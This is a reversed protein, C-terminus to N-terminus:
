DSDLNEMKLPHRADAYNAVATSTVTLFQKALEFSKRTALWLTCFFGIWGTTILIAVIAWFSAACIAFIAISLAGIYIATVSAFFLALFGGAVALSVFLSIVIANFTAALVLLLFVSLGTLSVLTITGVSIVLLARLPSGRRTWLLVDQGTNRSAEPIRPAYQSVSTKIRQLLPASNGKHAVLIASGMHHLIEYLTEREKTSQFAGDIDKEGAIEVYAGNPKPDVTECSEAM